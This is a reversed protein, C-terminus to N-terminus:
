PSFVMILCDPIKERLIKLDPYYLRLFGSKRVTKGLLAAIVEAEAIGEVKWASVEASVDTAVYIPVKLRLRTADGCADWLVDIQDVPVEITSGDRMRYSRRGDRMEELPVKEAALNRNLDSMISDVFDMSGGNSMYYIM